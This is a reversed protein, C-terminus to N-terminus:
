DVYVFENSNLLIRCLGSLGDDSDKESGSSELFGRIKTLEEGTPPRGLALKFARHIRSEPDSGGEKRIREAFHRAEENVFDGNYMELAQLSTVSSRRRDRSTDCVMADFADLMPMNLTRQQYIYVSRKRAEPGRQTNWKSESYKVTEALDGPLAPFIPLGFQEPNLRGSVALVSDRIAEGELRKRRFRWFLRNDPDLEFATQNEVRSAQRYTSSNVILRHMAKMSWKAEVFRHALWDLLQPHSPGGSLEGFDSPTAVIGQGFHWHWLRNAMVRATFPNENSAIWQALAMRRSRTPWRKFPDLRIKAPKEDGEIAALFGAKVIEGPNDYEGRIMVRTTPVGPEYPPGYSHRVSMAVPRLRKVQQKLLNARSSLEDLRRVEGATFIDNKPDRLVKYFFKAEKGTQKFKEKLEDRHQEFEKQAAEHEKTYKASLKEAWEKEGPRYFEAPLPGGLQYADGPEPRPMWVTSFFAQMRYFDRIPIQDYKHDHCKACGVTLGLFVSGVTSTMESLLEHRTEDGRPESFPALRLFTLAVTHEPEPNPLPGAGMEEHFEDGAIQEKIFQDYPKDANFADIVYDRYRWAHPMDPDGELGATDAYRALDLWFRGWREGYRSDGLLRDVLRSYAKPDKDALFADVEEPTPPLGVLDFTVRRILTRRSAEPAPEVGKEELKRLIFNDIGNSIWESKEVRPPEADVPASYPWVKEAAPMTGSPVLICVILPSLCDLLLKRDRM